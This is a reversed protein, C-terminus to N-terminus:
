KAHLIGHERARRIVWWAFIAYYILFPLFVYIRKNAELGVLAFAAIGQLLTMAWYYISVSAHSFGTRNLLQYLHTRHALYVKEGNTLRRFFTFLTDFIFHFLLLPVLYFSLRVADVEAGIVALSAFVFGIFASGVDGMFIRAVPFNFILFGAASSILAYSALYVFWSGERFAVACLFIGAIVAVGAAMGNLGDMFNYANILGLLWLATLPYGVWGLRVEGALPLSLRSLVVGGWLMVGICIVQTALKLRFSAQTVDDVFSVLAVLVGCVLFSWFYRDEIRAYHAVFYIVTTGALFACLIALGGSKPIPTTHSSRDTPVDMVRVVRAMFYTISASLVFLAAAFALHTLLASTPPSL